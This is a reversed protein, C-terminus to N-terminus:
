GRRRAGLRLVVAGGALMMMWTSAEPVAGLVLSDVTPYYSTGDPGLLQVSRLPTTSELSFYKTPAGSSVGQSFTFTESYGLIDIGKVSMTGSVANSATLESLYFSAGFNFVPHGGFNSFTLTDTNNEVQLAPGGIVPSQVAFLNSETSVTYSVPNLGPLPISRNLSAAGLSTDITLDSFKDLGSALGSPPLTAQYNAAATESNAGPATVASFTFTAHAAGVACSMAAAAILGYSFRFAIM